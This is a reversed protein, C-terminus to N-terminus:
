ICTTSKCTATTSCVWSVAVDPTSPPIPALMVTAGVVCPSVGASKMTVVISGADVAVSEVYKGVGGSIDVPISGSGGNIASPAVGMMLVEGIASKRGEAIYVAEALQARGTYIQYQPIAIASLIGIIVVVIMLEILTFGQALTRSARSAHRGPSM